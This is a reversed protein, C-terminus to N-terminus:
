IQSILKYVTHKRKLENLCECFCNTVNQFMWWGCWPHTDSFGSPPETDKIIMRSVERFEWWCWCSLFDATLIRRCEQLEAASTSVLLRWTVHCLVFSIDRTWCMNYECVTIKLYFLVIHSIEDSLFYEFCTITIHKLFPDKFTSKTQDSDQKHWGFGSPFSLGWM